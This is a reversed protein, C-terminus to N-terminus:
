TSAAPESDVVDSVVAVAAAAAAPTASGFRKAREELKRAMEPDVAATIKARKSSDEAPAAASSDGSQFREKRKQSKEAQIQPM